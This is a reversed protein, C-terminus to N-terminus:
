LLLILFVNTYANTRLFMLSKMVELSPCYHQRPKKYQKYITTKKTDISGRMQDLRLGYYNACEIFRNARM